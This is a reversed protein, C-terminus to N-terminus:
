HNQDHSLDEEQYMFQRDIIKQARALVPADVMAGDVAIAAASSAADLVRRAWSVEDSTPAMGRRAPLIQAPHILLKGGFGISSAYRADDEIMAEDRISTTVGDIPQPKGSIRSAIVLESRALLLADRIHACGVDAAFDISGFALQHAHTSIERAAAIGSATEILAIIPVHHGMADNVSRLGSTSEAKPVMVGGIDYKRIAAIDDDHWPTGLANVRIVISKASDKLESLGTVLAVRAQAKNGPAVADELDIIICDGGASLAKLFRDPRDAPVFLPFSFDTSKPSM